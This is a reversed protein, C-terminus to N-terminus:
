EKKIWTLVKMRFYDGQKVQVYYETVETKGQKIPRNRPACNNRIKLPNIPTIKCIFLCDKLCTLVKLPSPFTKRNQSLFPFSDHSFM